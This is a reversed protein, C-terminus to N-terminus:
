DDVPSPLPKDSTGKEKASQSSFQRHLKYGSPLEQISSGERTFLAYRNGDVTILLGQNITNNQSDIITHCNSLQTTASIFCGKELYDTKSQQVIDQGKFTGMLTVGIWFFIFAFIALAVKMASLMENSVFHLSFTLSNEDTNLKNIAKTVDAPLKLSGAKGKTLKHVSFVFLVIGIFTFALWIWIGDQKFINLFDICYFVCAYYANVYADTLSLPFANSSVGFQYLYAQHYSLGMLYFAPALITLFLPAVSLLVTKKEVNKIFETKKSAQATM